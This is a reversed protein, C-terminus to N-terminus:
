VQRCLIATQGVSNGFRGADNREEQPRGHAPIPAAATAAHAVIEAHPVPGWQLFPAM